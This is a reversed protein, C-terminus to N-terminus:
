LTHPNSLEVDLVESSYLSGLNVETLALRHKDSRIPCALTRCQFSKRQQEASVSKDAHQGLMIKIPTVRFRAIANPENRGHSSEARVDSCLM